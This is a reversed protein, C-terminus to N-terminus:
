DKLQKRPDILLVRWGRKQETWCAEQAKLKEQFQAETLQEITGDLKALLRGLKRKETPVNEFLVITDTPDAQRIGRVYVYGSDDPWSPNVFVDIDDVLKPYVALPDDPFAGGSDQAYSKFAQVLKSLHARNESKREAIGVAAFHRLGFFFVGGILGVVILFIALFNQKTSPAASQETIVETHETGETAFSNTGSSEL